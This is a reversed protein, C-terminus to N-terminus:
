PVLDQISCSLSPVALYVCIKFFFLSLSLSLAASTNCLLTFLSLIISSQMRLHNVHNFVAVVVLVALSLCKRELKLIDPINPGPYELTRFTNVDFTM